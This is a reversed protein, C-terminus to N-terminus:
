DEPTAIVYVRKNWLWFNAGGCSVLTLRETESPMLLNLHRELEKQNGANFPIEKVTEVEYVHEEGDETYLIIPNGKRLKKLDHFAGDWQYIGWDYNHGVLIINSGEGPLASGELHGVLDKRKRTAFLSDTDWEQGAKKNGVMGIDVVSREIKIKPIRIRVVPESPSLPVTTPTSQSEVTTTIPTSEGELTTTIPTSQSELTTTIPTSQSELTTTISTSQGTLLTLLSTVQEGLTSTIPVSQDETTTDSRAELQDLANSVLPLLLVSEDGPAPYPSDTDTSALAEPPPYPQETQAAPLAPPTQLDPLEANADPAPTSTAPIETNIAITTTLNGTLTPNLATASPQAEPSLQPAPQFPSSTPESEGPPMDPPLTWELSELFPNQAAYLLYQYRYLLAGMVLSIGLAM